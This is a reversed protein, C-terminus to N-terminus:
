SFAQADGLLRHLAVLRDPMVAGGEVTQLAHGVYEAEFHLADRPEGGAPARCPYAEADRSSRSPM